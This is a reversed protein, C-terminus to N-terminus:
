VSAMEKWFARLAGSVRKKPNIISTSGKKPPLHAIARQPCQVPIWALKKLQIATKRKKEM